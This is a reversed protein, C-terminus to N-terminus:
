LPPGDSERHKWPMSSRERGRVVAEVVGPRCRREEHEVVGQAISHDNRAGEQSQERRCGETEARRAGGGQGLAACSGAIREPHLVDSM